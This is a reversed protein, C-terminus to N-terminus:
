VKQVRVKGKELDFAARFRTPRVWRIMINRLLKPEFDKATAAGKSKITTHLSGLDGLSVSKGDLLAELAHVCAEKIVASADAATATSSHSIKDCLTAFSMQTQEVEQAYYKVSKDIPNKRQIVKYKLMTKIIKLVMWEVHTKHHLNTIIIQNTDQQLKKRLVNCLYSILSFQALSFSLFNLGKKTPESQDSAKRPPSLSTPRTPSTPPGRLSEQKESQDSQDSFM